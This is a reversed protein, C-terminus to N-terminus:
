VDPINQLIDTLASRADNHSDLPHAALSQILKKVITKLCHHAALLDRDFHQGELQMAMHSCINRFEISDKLHISFPLNEALPCLLNQEVSLLQSTLDTVRSLRNDTAREALTRTGPGSGRRPPLQAPGRDTLSKLRQTQAPEPLQPQGHPSQAPAKSPPCGLVSGNSEGDTRTGWNCTMHSEHGGDQAMDCINGGDQAMAPAHGGDQAMAHASACESGVGKKQQLHKLTTLAVMQHGMSTLLPGGPRAMRQIDPPGLVMDRKWRQLGTQTYCGM